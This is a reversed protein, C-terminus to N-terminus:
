VIFKHFISTYYQVLLRDGAVIQSLTCISNHHQM